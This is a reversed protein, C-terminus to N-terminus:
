GIIENSEKNEKKDKVTYHVLVGAGAMFGWFVENAIESVPVDTFLHSFVIYGGTLVSMVTYVFLTLSKRSWKGNKEKLTDDILKNLKEM